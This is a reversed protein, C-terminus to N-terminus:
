GGVVAHLLPEGARLRRCNEFAVAISRDLTEPTLWAVHPTVVSRRSSLLPNTAPVPETAFVDLGAARIRGTALAEALAAEDVIGGRATNVLVAGPKMRALAAADLLGATGETLPVHVSVVDSHALLEDLDAWEAAADAYRTRSWYLVHAGLARLVSVLGRAVAGYGILGFTRGGVEGAADVLHPDVPWGRGARTDADLAPLSRLAALVLLLTHEIVAQTNTGPMNAVAVGRRRAADLDITNVGVGLKQVLRLQPAASLMADTVPTLVHLLVDTGALEAHLAADDREDVVVVRLWDPAGSTVRHAFGPSARYHLVAKMREAPM